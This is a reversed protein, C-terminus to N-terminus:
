TVRFSLIDNNENSRKMDVFHVRRNRARPPILPVFSHCKQTKLSRYHSFSLSSQPSAGIIPFRCFEHFPCPLRPPPPASVLTARFGASRIFLISNTKRPVECVVAHSPPSNKSPVAGIIRCIDAISRARIQDFRRFSMLRKANHLAPSLAPKGKKAVMVSIETGGKEWRGTFARISVRDREREEYIEGM